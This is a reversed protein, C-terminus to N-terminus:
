IRQFVRSLNFASLKWRGAISLMSTNDLISRPQLICNLGMAPRYATGEPQWVLGGLKIILDPQKKHSSMV